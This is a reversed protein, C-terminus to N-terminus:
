SLFVDFSGLCLPLLSRPLLIHMGMDFLQTLALTEEAQDQAGVSHSIAAGFQGKINECALKHRDFNADGIEYNCFFFFIYSAYIKFIM